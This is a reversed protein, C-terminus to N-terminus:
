NSKWTYEKIAKKKRAETTKARAGMGRQGVEMKSRVREVNREREKQWWKEKKM